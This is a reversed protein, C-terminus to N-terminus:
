LSRVFSRILRLRVSRSACWRSVVGDCIARQAIALRCWVRCIRRDDSCPSSSAFRSLAYASLSAAAHIRAALADIRAADDLAELVRRYTAARRSLLMEM